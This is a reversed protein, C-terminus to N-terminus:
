DQKDAAEQEVDPQSKEESRECIELLYVSYDEESRSSKSSCGKILAM